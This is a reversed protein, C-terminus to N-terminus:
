KIREWKQPFFVHRDCKTDDICEFALNEGKISFRYIGPVGSGCYADLVHLMNGSVSYNGSFDLNNRLFKMVYTGDKNFTIVPLQVFEINKWTGTLQDVDLVADGSKKKNCGCLALSLVM